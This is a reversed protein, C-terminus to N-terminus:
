VCCDGEFGNFSVQNWNCREGSKCSGFEWMHTFISKLEPLSGDEYQLRVLMTIIDFWSPKSHADNGKSICPAHYHTPSEIRALLAIFSWFQLFVWKSVSDNEVILLNKFFFDGLAKRKNSLCGSFHQMQKYCLEKNSKPQLQEAISFPADASSSVTWRWDSVYIVINGMSGM